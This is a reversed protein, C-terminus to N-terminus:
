IENILSRRLQDDRFERTSISIYADILMFILTGGGLIICEALSYDDFQGDVEISLAKLYVVVILMAMLMVMFVTTLVRIYLYWNM